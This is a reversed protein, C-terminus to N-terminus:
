RSFVYREGGTLLHMSIRSISEADVEMASPLPAVLVRGEELEVDYGNNQIVVREGSSRIRLAAPDTLKIEGYSNIWLTSPSINGHVNGAKKLDQGLETLQEALALGEKGNIERSMLVEGLTRGEIPEIYYGVTRSMADRAVGTPPPIHKPSSMGLSTQACFASENSFDTDSDSRFLGVYTSERTSISSAVGHVERWLISFFSSSTNGQETLSFEDGSQYAFGIVYLKRLSAKIADIGISNKMKSDLDEASSKKSDHMFALVKAETSSIMVSYVMFDCDILYHNFYISETYVVWWYPHSSEMLQHFHRVTVILEAIADPHIIDNVPVRRNSIQLAIHNTDDRRDSLSKTAINLGANRNSNM